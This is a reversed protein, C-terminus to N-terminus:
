FAAVVEITFKDHLLKNRAFDSPKRGPLYKEYNFRIESRILKKGFGVNLGVTIRNALVVKCLNLSLFLIVRM